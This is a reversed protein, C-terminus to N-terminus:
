DSQIFQIWKTVLEPDFQVGANRQIEELADEASMGQKYVREATM